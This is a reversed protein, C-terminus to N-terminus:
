QWDGLIETNPLARRLKLLANKTVHTQKLNLRRLKKKARLPDVGADTIATGVMELYTRSLKESHKESTKKSSPYKSTQISLL